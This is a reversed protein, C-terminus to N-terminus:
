YLGSVKYTTGSRDAALLDTYNVDYRREKELKYLTNSREVMLNDYSATGTRLNSATIKYQTGSSDVQFNDSNQITSM